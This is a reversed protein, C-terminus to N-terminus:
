FLNCVSKIEFFIITTPVLVVIYLVTTSGSWLDVSEHLDTISQTALMQSFHPIFYFMISHILAKLIRSSVIFVLELSIM